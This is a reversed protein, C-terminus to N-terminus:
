LKIYWLTIQGIFASANTNNRLVINTTSLSIQTQAGVSTNSVNPLQVQVGDSARRAWFEHRICLFNGVIGHAVSKTTNNPLAGFNVTIQFITEGATYTRGATQESNSYDVTLGNDVASPLVAFELATAGANVRVGQLAAGSYSAPTDTLGLFASAGGGGGSELATIDTCLASLMRELYLQIQEQSLQLGTEDQPSPVQDYLFPTIACIEAM